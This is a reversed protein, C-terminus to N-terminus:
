IGLSERCITEEYNDPFGFLFQNHKARKLFLHLDYEWTFGIGGHLQLCILTVRRYAETATLRAVAIASKKDASNADAAWAAYSSASKASELEAFLEVLPHKVAQFSGILTGFQTRQKAYEVTLKFIREAGAVSGAAICVNAVELVSEVIATGKRPQGILADASVTVGELYLQGSRSTLDSLTNGRVAAGQAGAEVLFLSIGAGDKAAVVFLDAAVADPVLSKVGNLTYGNASKAAACKTAQASIEGTAEVFAITAKTDGSAIKELWKSKAADTGGLAIARAALVTSLFPGPFLARGLEEAVVALEQVGLGLGGHQEPVMLGLWGQEAIKAWLEATVGKPNDALARVKETTVESDCFKRVSDQLMKQEDTLQVNM